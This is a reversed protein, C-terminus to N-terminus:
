AEYDSDNDNDSPEEFEQDQDRDDETEEPEDHEYIDWNEDQGVEGLASEAASQKIVHDQLHKKCANLVHARLKALKENIRCLQHFRFIQMKMDSKFLDRGTVSKNKSREDNVVNNKVNEQDELEQLALQRHFRLQHTRLTLRTWSAGVGNDLFKNWISISIIECSLSKLAVMLESAPEFFDVFTFRGETFRPSIVINLTHINTKDSARAFVKIADAMFEKTHSSYRNHDAQVTIYRFYQAYKVTDITGPQHVPEALPDAGRNVDIEQDRIGPEPVYVDDNALEQVNVMVQSRTPADRLRYLFTNEGYLVGSAEVFVKKSVRLINTELGPKERQYVRKWGDYVPVPKNSVLLGRYIQERVEAPLDMLNLRRPTKINTRAPPRHPPQPPSSSSASRRNCRQVLNRGRIHPNCNRLWAVTNRGRGLGRYKSCASPVNPPPATDDEDFSEEPTEQRRPGWNFQGMPIGNEETFDKLLPAEIKTKTGDSTEVRQSGKSPQPKRRKKPRGDNTITLSRKSSSSAASGSSSSSSSPSSSRSRSQTAQCVRMKIKPNQKITRTSAM